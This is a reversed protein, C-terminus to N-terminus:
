YDIRALNCFIEELPNSSVSWRVGDGQTDSDTDAQACLVTYLDSLCADPSLKLSVEDGGSVGEQALVRCKEGIRAAMDSVSTRDGKLQVTVGHAAQRKLSLVTGEAVLQGQRMIGCRDALAEAEAMAHTTLIVTLSAAAELLGRWVGKRTAVDLGTTPEDALLICRAGLVAMGLSLRRRMGGSLQGARKDAHSTLGVTALVSDVPSPGVDDMVLGRVDSILQMHRRVTLNPWYLDHQPVCVVRDSIPQKNTPAGETRSERERERGNDRNFLPVGRLSATGSDPHLMGAICNILTTKGAGNVGLLGYVEGRRLHLSVGRLAQTGNSYTHKIDTLSLSLSGTGRTGFTDDVGDADGESSTAEGVNSVLSGSAQPVLLVCSDKDDAPQSRGKGVRHLAMGVRSCWAGMQALVGEGQVLCALAIYACTGMLCQISLPSGGSVETLPHSLLVCFAVPPVVFLGPSPPVFVGMLLVLVLIISATVAAPTQRKICVALLAGTAVCASTGLAFTTFTRFLDDTFLSLHLAAGILVALVSVVLGQMTYYAILVLTGVWSKVSHLRLLRVRGSEIDSSLAIAVRPIFVLAVIPSVLETLLTLLSGIDLTYTPDAIFPYAQFTGGFDIDMGHGPNVSQYARSMATHTVRAMDDNVVGVWLPPPRTPLALQMPEVMTAHYHTAMCHYFQGVYPPVSVTGDKFVKLGTSNPSDVSVHARPYSVTDPINPLFTHLRYKYHSMNSAMELASDSHSLSVSGTDETADRSVEPVPFDMYMSEVVFNPLMRNAANRNYTQGYTSLDHLICSNHRQVSVMNQQLQAVSGWSYVDVTANTTYLKSNPTCHEQYFASNDKCDQKCGDYDFEIDYYESYPKFYNECEFYCEYVCNSCSDWSGSGYRRGMYAWFATTEEQKPDPYLVPDLDTNYLTDWHETEYADSVAGNGAAWGMGLFGLAISSDLDSSASRSQTGEPALSADFSNIHGMSEPGWSTVGYEGWLAGPDNVGYVAPSHIDLGQFQIYEYCAANEAFGVGDARFCEEPRDDLCKSLSLYGQDMCCSTCSVTSQQMSTTYWADSYSQLLPGTVAVLAANLGLLLIALIIHRFVGIASAAQDVLLTKTFLASLVSLWRASPSLTRSPLAGGRREGGQTERERETDADEGVLASFVEELSAREIVFDTVGVDSSAAGREQELDLAVLPLVSSASPPLSLSVVHQSLLSVSAAPVRERVRRVVRGCATEGDTPTSADDGGSVSVSVTYGGRRHRLDFCSGSEIVRGKNLISIESALRQVEAMSHSTLLCAAGQERLSSMYSWVARKTAPDLGTTPEDLFVVRPGGAAAVGLSLRRQMGGSLETAKRNRHQLLRVGKLITHCQKDIDLTSTIGRLRLAIKVNCEVTLGTWINENLQPCIGVHRKAYFAQCPDTLDYGLVSVAYSGDDGETASVGEVSQYGKSSSLSLMSTSGKGRKTSPDPATEGSLLKILTSKGAGNIGCLAHVVGPAVSLSAGSLAHVREGGKVRFTKHVGRVLAPCSFDPKQRRARHFRPLLPYLLPLGRSRDGPRIHAIYVALIPLALTQVLPMLVASLGLYPVTYTCPIPIPQGREPLCQEYCFRIKTHYGELDTFYVSMDYQPPDTRVGWEEPIIILGLTNFTDALSLPPLIWSMAMTVPLPIVSPDFVSSGSFLQQMFYGLLLAVVSLGGAVSVAAPLSLCLASLLCALSAYSVAQLGFMVCLSQMDMNAMPTMHLAYGVWTYLATSLLTLPLLVLWWSLYHHTEKLGLGRMSVLRN